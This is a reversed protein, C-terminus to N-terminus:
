RNRKIFYGVIVVIVIIAIIINRRSKSPSPTTSYSTNLLRESDELGTFVIPELRINNVVDKTLKIDVITGNEVQFGNLMKPEAFPVTDEMTRDVVSVIDFEGFAAWRRGSDYINQPKDLFTVGSGFIKANSFTSNNPIVIKKYPSTM